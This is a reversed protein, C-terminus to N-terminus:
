ASASIASGTPTTSSCRLRCYDPATTVVLQQDGSFAQLLILVCGAFSPREVIRHGSWPHVAPTLNRMIALM